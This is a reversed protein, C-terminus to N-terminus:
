ARGRQQARRAGGIRPLRERQRRGELVIFSLSAAFDNTGTM